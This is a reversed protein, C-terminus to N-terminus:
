KSELAAIRAALSQITADHQQWGSYIEKFANVIYTTLRDYQYGEVQGDAGYSVVLPTAAASDDAIFGVFRPGPRGREEYTVPRLQLLEHLGGTFPQEDQKYRRASTSRYLLGDSAVFMNAASATSTNYTGRSYINNVPLAASGINYAEASGPWLHGATSM